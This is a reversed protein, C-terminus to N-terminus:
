KPERQLYFDVAQAVSEEIPRPQWALETKAKSSDINPLLRSCKISSVTLETEKNLLRCVLQTIFAVTYLLPLPIKFAPPKVGAYGATLSFLEEFSLWREAFAYREGIRGNKEALLMGRAADTIGLCPGGGDWFMPMKGLAVTKVMNGHPTPAIDDSGYTNGICCAVGPLGKDRCYSMFVNEAEVRCRIYHPADDWWNFEDTETSPGDDRRGITGFTSTFIFKEVGAELAADMANKLGDVNVRYLPAPDRLWARTDVVCYFVSDCDQMAIKLSDCDLVDGYFRELELHDIAQTNSSKRVLIRVNRGEEVLAKTTHSGLFGSAGLVLTKGM